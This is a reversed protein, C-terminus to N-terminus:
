VFCCPRSVFKNRAGPSDAAVTFGGRYVAFGPKQAEYVYLGAPLGDFRFEGSPGSSVEHAHPDWPVGSFPDNVQSATPMKAISVRADQVPERTRVNRVVGNAPYQQEAQGFAFMVLFIGLAILRANAM